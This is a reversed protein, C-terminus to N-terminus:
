VRNAYMPCTVSGTELVLRKDWLESLQVTTGDLRTLTFDPVTEGVKPGVFSALDYLGATFRPYNYIM